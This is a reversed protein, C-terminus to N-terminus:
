MSQNASSDPEIGTAVVPLVLTPEPVAAATSEAVAPELGVNGIDNRDMGVWASPTAGYYRRLKDIHCVIPKARPGRRILFNADNIARIVQFPGTYSRAWKPTRGRYRRPYFYWVFDGPRYEQTRVNANYNRKQREVQQGSHRCVIEFARSLREIASTAYEAAEAPATEGPTELLLDLPCVVERAFMLYYPSFSTAESRSANYALVCPQLHEVWDRQNASVNKAMLSNLARHTREVKGNCNLRYSTTRLQTIHLLRCIHTFIKNQFERGLNTCIQRCFGFKCFVQHVLADAVSEASKDPLPTAILYRTFADVCTM